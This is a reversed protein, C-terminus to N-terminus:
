ARHTGTGPSNVSEMDFLTRYKEESERLAKESASLDTLTDELIGSACKFFSVDNDYRINM